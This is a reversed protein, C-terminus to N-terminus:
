SSLIRQLTQYDAENIKKPFDIDFKIIMDARCQPNKQHPLGRGKIVDRTQPNIVGNIKRREKTGDLYEINLIVGCLANLLPIRVTYILNNNSDRKYLRHPKDKTIFVVDAPTRGLYQDGANEFRIKTGEKWGKKVNITVTNHEVRIQGDSDQVKRTIKMKKTCGSDLEEYTLGLDCEVEPDKVTGKPRRSRGGFSFMGDSDGPSSMFHSAFPDSCNGSGGSGFIFNMVNEDNGFTERFMKFPDTNFTFHFSKGGFQPGAGGGMSGKLGEEGYLDYTKRKEDDRLVEYAESVEKFKHVADPDKNKDPHYQLALNRYAKKLEDADANKAVGLIAYYDKGM